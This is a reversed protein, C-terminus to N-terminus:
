LPNVLIRILYIFQTYIYNRLAAGFIGINIATVDLVVVNNPGTISITTAILFIDNDLFIDAVYIAAIDFVATAIVFIDFIAINGFATASIAIISSIAVSNFIVGDQSDRNNDAIAGAKIEFDKSNTINNVVVVKRM